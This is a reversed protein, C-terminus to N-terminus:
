AAERVREVPVLAEQPVFFAPRGDGRVWWEERKCQRGTLGGVVRYEPLRGIVLVFVAENPDAPHVILRGNPRHTHRVQYRGVDGPLEAPNSAVPQWYLGASKAFALEAGAAEVDMGWLDHAPRGYRDDRGANIASLRRMMGAQAAHFMESKSLTIM